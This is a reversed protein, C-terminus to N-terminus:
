ITLIPSVNLMNNSIDVFSGFDKNIMENTYNFGSEGSVDYKSIINGNNLISIRYRGLDSVVDDEASIRINLRPSWSINYGNQIKSCNVNVPNFDKLSNAVLKIDVSGADDISKNISVAKILMDNGKMTIPIKIENLNQDLLIAVEGNSHTSVYQETNYLGRLLHSLIFTNEGIQQVTGFAIIENGIIIINTKLDYLVDNTISSIESGDSLFAVEIKSVDDIVFTDANNIPANLVNGVISSKYVTSILSYNQGKDYSVFIDAGNWNSDNSWVAYYVSFESSTLTNKINYLDLVKINTNAVYSTTLTNSPNSDSNNVDGITYNIDSVAIGEIALIFNDIVDIKKVRINYSQGDFTLSIVDLPAINCYKQLPIKFSYTKKKCSVNSLINWAISQAQSITMPIAVQSSYSVKNDDLVGENVSVTGVTFNSNLNPFLFEVNNPVFQSSIQDVVFSSINGNMIIDNENVIHTDVENLPVFFLKGSRMYCDFNYVESLSKIEDILKTKSDFVYGYVYEKNLLSADFDEDGLGSLKCIYSVLNALSAFGLKGNVFHGYQWSDSDAWIDKSPFVPHRADWTYLFALDIFDSFPKSQLTKLTAEIALKQAKFDVNGQSLFPFGSDFSGPSYFVNPQNTACDVSPFGFETFIIKKSKPVWPTKQGDINYHNNEWFYKYNKWAYQPSLTEKVMKDEDTYYFDYGEGSTWGKSIEGIDYVSSGSNSLPPYADIGIYDLNPNNYLEDYLFNGKNDHHYDSWDNAITVLCDKGVIGKIQDVLGSLRQVSVYKGSPNQFAALSKLESAVIFMDPKIGNNILLNAYHLPFANYNDFFRNVDVESNASIHGRWPKKDVDMMLMPYICVKLGKSKLFQVARLISADTPTGGYRIKGDADRGVTRSNERNIGAVSWNNPSTMFDKSESAPYINCLGAQLSDGFWCVVLSVWTLNPFTKLLNEISDVFDTESSSSHNNLITSPKTQIAQGLRWQVEIKHQTITDYVAEGTGPIITIANILNEVKNYNIGNDNNRVVDFTFNPIRGGYNELPFDHFVIYCLDRFAPVNDIGLFGQMTPDPNQDNTGLYISINYNSEVIQVDDAYINVIQDVVGKCIAIAFSARITTNSGGGQMGSKTMRAATTVTDKRIKSCWMINGSLRMKGFVDPIVKAYTSTQLTVDKLSTQVKDSKNNLIDELSLNSGNFLEFSGGFSSSLLSPSLATFIDSSGGFSASVLLSNLM